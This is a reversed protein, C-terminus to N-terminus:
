GTLLATEHPRLTPFPLEASMNKLADAPLSDTITQRQAESLLALAAPTPAFSPCLVGNLAIIQLSDFLPLFNNMPQAPSVRAIGASNELNQLGVMVADEGFLLEIEPGELLVSHAQSLLLDDRAGLVGAKIRLAHTTRGPLHDIWRLPQPGNHLTWVMNGAQLQRLPVEGSDTRIMADGPFGALLDPQAPRAAPQDPETFYTVGPTPDFSFAYGGDRPPEGIRVEFLAGDSGLLEIEHQLSIITNDFPENSIKGHFM